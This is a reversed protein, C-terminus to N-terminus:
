SSQFLNLVHATHYLICTRLKNTNLLTHVYLYMIKVYLEFARDFLSPEM